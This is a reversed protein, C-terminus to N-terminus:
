QITFGYTEELYEKTLNHNSLKIVIELNWDILILNHIKGMKALANFLFRGSNDKIFEPSDCIWINIILSKENFQVFIGYREFGWAVTNQLKNITEGYGTEVENFFNISIPDLLKKMNHLTIKRDILKISTKTYDERSIAKIFDTEVGKTDGIDEINKHAAFYNEEPILEIQRYFDEHFFISKHM